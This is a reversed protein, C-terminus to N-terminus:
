EAAPSDPDGAANLELTAKLLRARRQLGRTNVAMVAAFYGDLLRYTGADIPGHKRVFAERFRSRWDLALLPRLEPTEVRVRYLYDSGAEFGAVDVWESRLALLEGSVYSEYKVLDFLPPGSSVGAVSVPDILLLRPPALAGPDLGTAEPRWLMNELFCDGHLRLLPPADLAALGFAQERLRALARRAGHLSVGNIRVNEARILQTLAPDTELMGLAREMVSIVHASLAQAGPTVPVHVRELLLEALELQLRDVEGQLLQGSRALAGADRHEAYFPVEYGVRPPNSSVDDWAALLPPFAARAAPPLTSLYEIERRLAEVGWPGPPADGKTSKRVALSGDDREVLETREWYGDRLTRVVRGSAVPPPANADTM